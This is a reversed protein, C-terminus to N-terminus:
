VHKLAYSLRAAAVLGFGVGAGHPWHYKTVKEIAHGFTHGLNLHARVGQEYPDQEVVNVKVQVARQVLEEANEPQHLTPDLLAPDALLGHKIVEAMGNRWEVAPLTM